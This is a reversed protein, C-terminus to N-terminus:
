LKKIALTFGNTVSQGSLPLTHAAKDKPFQVIKTQQKGSRHSEKSGKKKTSSICNQNRQMLKAGATM